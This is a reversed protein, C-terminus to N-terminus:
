SIASRHARRRRGVGTALAGAGLLVVTGAAGIGADGWQFGGQASADSGPTVSVPQGPATAAPPTAPGLDFRAQAAAPFSAAALVVGVTLFRRIRHNSFMDDEESV